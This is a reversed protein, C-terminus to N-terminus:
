LWRASFSAKWGPSPFSAALFTEVIPTWRRVRRLPPACSAFPPAFLRPAPIAVRDRHMVINEVVVIADDIVLGVAAALGGLTMLNFSM